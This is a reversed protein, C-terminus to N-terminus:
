VGRQQTGKNQQPGQSGKLLCKKGGKKPIQSQVKHKAKLTRRRREHEELQKKPLLHIVVNKTGFKPHSKKFWITYSVYIRYNEVTTSPSLPFVVGKPVLTQTLRKTKSNGPDSSPNLCAHNPLFLTLAQGSVLLNVQVNTLLALCIFCRSIRCIDNYICFYEHNEQSVMMRVSIGSWGMRLWSRKTVPLIQSPYEKVMEAKNLMKTWFKILFGLDQCNSIGISAM